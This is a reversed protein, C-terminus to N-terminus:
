GDAFICNKLIGFLVRVITSLMLLKRVVSEPNTLNDNIKM